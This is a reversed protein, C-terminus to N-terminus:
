RMEPFVFANLQMQHLHMHANPHTHAFKSADDNYRTKGNYRSVEM